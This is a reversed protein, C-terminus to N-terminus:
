VEQPPEFNSWLIEQVRAKTDGGAAHLPLDFEHRTWDALEKNYLDNSYSSIMVKGQCRKIVDLLQVHDKAPTVTATFTVPQGYISSANSSTVASVTDIQAVAFTLPSSQFAVYNADGAYNGVVTYTGADV